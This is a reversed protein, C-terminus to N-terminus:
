LEREHKGLLGFARRTRSNRQRLRAWERRAAEIEPGEDCGHAELELLDRFAREEEVHAEETCRACMGSIHNLRVGVAGCEPCTSLRRLSVHIRSAHAEIARVSRRVGCERALAMRVADVGEYCHERLLEEQRCTWPQASV